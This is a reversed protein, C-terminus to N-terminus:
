SCIAAPSLTCAALTREAGTAARQDLIIFQQVHGFGWKARVADPSLLSARTLSPAHEARCPCPRVGVSVCLLISKINVAPLCVTQSSATSVCPIHRPVVWAPHLPACRSCDYASACTHVCRENYVHWLFIFRSSSMGCRSRLAWFSSPQVRLFSLVKNLPNVGVNNKVRQLNFM